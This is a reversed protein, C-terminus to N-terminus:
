SGIIDAGSAFTLCSVRSAGANKLVSSAEDLTAGTTYIDDVLLISKGPLKDRKRERIAFAGQINAKREEPSLGKMASTERARMLIEGDYLLGARKAFSSAIVDAQNFGREGKRKRYIPIATVLDFEKRIEEADFEALMRDYAIEGITEGIDGRSAYKLEYLLTREHLGYTACSYGRDFEHVNAKCNFCLEGPDTDSLAKGCKICRRGTNWNIGAICDNCMRYTRSEDIIKGCCICYLSGPYVLDLLGDYIKRLTAEGM